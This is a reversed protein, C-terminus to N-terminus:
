HRQYDLPDNEMADDLGYYAHTITTRNEKDHGSPLYLHVLPSPTYQKEVSVDSTQSAMHQPSIAPAAKMIDDIVCLVERKFTKMQQDTMEDLEPLLSLLFMKKSDHKDDSPTTIKAKKAKLYELFSNDVESSTGKSKRTFNTKTGPLQSLNPQPSLPPLPPIQSTSPPAPTSPTQFLSDDEDDESLDLVHQEERPKRPLNGTSTPTLTKIFPLTFQMAETLYYPKKTRTGSGSPAPKM